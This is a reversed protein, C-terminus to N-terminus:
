REESQELTAAEQRSEEAQEYLRKVAQPDNKVRDLADTMRQAQVGSCEVSVLSVSDYNKV